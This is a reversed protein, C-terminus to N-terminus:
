FNHAIAFMPEHNAIELSKTLIGMYVQRTKIPPTRV